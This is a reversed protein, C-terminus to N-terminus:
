AQTRRTYAVAQLARGCNEDLPSDKVPSVEEDVAVGWLLPDIKPFLLKGSPDRNNPEDEEEDWPVAEMEDTAVSFVADRGVKKLVDTSVFRSM